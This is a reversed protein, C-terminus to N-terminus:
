SVKFHLFREGIAAHDALQPDAFSCAIAVMQQTQVCVLRWLRNPPPTDSSKM